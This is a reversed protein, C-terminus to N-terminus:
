EDFHLLKFARNGINIQNFKTDELDNLVKKVGEDSATVGMIIQVGDGFGLLKDCLVRFSDDVVSQQKPEDYILIKPHNGQKKNSIQLLALTFAWTSRLEDSASSDYKMDFGDITPLFTDISIAIDEFHETSKYRFEQLLQAFIKGLEILTDKDDDSLLGRGLKAKMDLCKKWDECLLKFANILTIIQENGLSTKEIDEEIKIRQYVKASSYDGRVKVLDEMLVRQLKRLNNIDEELVSIDHEIDRLTKNHGQLSYKFLKEQNQLHAINQEISMYIKYNAM